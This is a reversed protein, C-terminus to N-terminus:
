ANTSLTEHRLLASSKFMILILASGVVFCLFILRRNHIFQDSFTGSVPSRHREVLKPLGERKPTLGWIAIPPGYWLFLSKDVAVLGYKGPEM